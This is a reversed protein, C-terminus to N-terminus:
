AKLMNSIPVNSYNYDDAGPTVPTDAGPIVHITRALGLMLAQPRYIAMAQAERPSVEDPIRQMVMM